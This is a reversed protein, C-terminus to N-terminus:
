RNLLKRLVDEDSLAEVNHVFGAMAVGEGVAADEAPPTTVDGRTVDNEMPPDLKRALYEALLAVTPYNWVMTAQLPIQLERECQTFLEVAMLSDFGFEGLPKDRNITRSEMRLLNGIVKKVFTEVAKRRQEASRVSLLTARLSSDKATMEMTPPASHKSAECMVSFIGPHRDAGLATRFRGWDMQAICGHPVRHAILLGLADMATEPDLTQVGMHILGDEARQNVEKRVFGVGSWLGWSVSVTPLGDAASYHAFADVFANAAAYSSLGVMGFLGNLSSYLVFFDLQQEKFLAHLNCAGAVKTILGTRYEGEDMHQMLKRDFQSATHIVGRVSPWNEATLAALAANLQSRNTVDVAATRIKAGGKEMEEIASIQKYAHTNRPVSAWQSRDPLPTRNMLLVKKAGQRVLWACTVLGLDGLGGTIVYTADSRISVPQRHQIPLPVAYPLYREGQRIAFQDTKDPRAMQDVLMPVSKGSLADQDLDVIGGWLGPFENAITRGMGWLTAGTFCRRTESVHVGQAGQTFIWLKPDDPLGASSVSKLLHLISFDIKAINEEFNEVRSDDGAPLDLGWLHVIRELGPRHTCVDSLLQEYDSSRSPNITIEDSTNVRYQDGASVAICTAGRCHLDDVLKRGFGSSDMFVLWCGPKLSFDPLGLSAGAGNTSRALIIMQEYLKSSPGKIAPIMQPEAFPLGSLAVKWQHTDLLPYSPRLSTDSFKWWGELLGFIMDAWPSPKAGEVLLMLGKPALLRSIHELTRRMNATAHLVNAAIVIDFQFPAFGQSHPNKEIDLLQYRIFPYDSLKARAQELFLTSVDSFVYETREGPLVPLLNLTTGGTGAGIELIRIVAKEPLSKAIFAGAKRIMDNPLRMIPAEKYLAAASNADDQNFMLELPDAQGSLVEFLAGACRDFLAMEMHLQPYRSLFDSFLAETDRNIPPSIVKWVDGAHELIGGKHLIELLRNLLRRHRKLIGLRAAVEGSSTGDGKKMEWGLRKFAKVIYGTCLQDLRGVIGQYQDATDDSDEPGACRGEENRIHRVTEKATPLRHSNDRPGHFDLRRVPLWQTKLLLDGPEVDRRPTAQSATKGTDTDTPSQIWYRKLQWPYSPVPICRGHAQFLNDWAISRNQSYLQGMAELITEEDDRGRRLSPLVTGDRNMHRCCQLISTNLVPQPSLELFTTTGAKIGTQLVTSVADAFRVPQRINEAWYAPGFDSGEALRGSVTSIVPMHAPHPQISEVAHMMEQQFPAILHSHFAYNVPLIRYFVNRGKVTELVSRLADADGSLTVSTPSNVAAITLRDKHHSILTAADDYSMGVAAMMGKGHARQLLRSRHFIVHVADELSLVGSFCAAAVEGVSHGVIADPRIGWHSWLEALGLQLAFISPQAVETEDMRTRSPDAALEEVLPWRTYPELLDSIRVVMDRYVSQQEFLQRGMAYWQPGQGSFVFVLTGPNLNEPHENSGDAIRTEKSSNRRSVQGLKQVIEQKSRGAVAVRVSYHARRIGATYSIDSLSASTSANDTLYRQWRIITDDLAKQNKASLPLLFIKPSLSEDAASGQEASPKGAYEQLIVHANTGGFGFSSVAGFRGERSVEWRVAETPFALRADGLQINPNLRNFHINPPIMRHHMCMVMKIIGAVGAAAELHGINSKVAGLFCTRTAPGNSSGYINRIAEFEIPDGLSTGTGHTEIFSVEEPRVGGNQLAAEIVAEQSSGNPATLGNSAGDQNIASGRIVAMVPDHDKEALNLRKLVLVGCGEGRVYGDAKEDFVKCRGDPALFNLKSFSLSTEPALVLNVGGAVALDCEGTRLAQCALHIAVLSSSCATDVALSPGRLDLCYSLRNAVISHAVGTSTYTDILDGRAGQLHYYDSSMSHIGVYVGTQQGSLETLPIGAAELAEVATMLLMRQQPDMHDAERPSINFFAPDFLQLDDIFGGWQIAELQSSSLGPENWRSWARRESTIRTIGDYGNMLLTWFTNPSTASGPFRCGMGIVAIPERVGAPPHDDPQILRQELLARKEPSLRALRQAIDNRIPPEKM